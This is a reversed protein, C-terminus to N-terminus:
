KAARAESIFFVLQASTDDPNAEEGLEEFYISRLDEIPMQALSNQAVVEQGALLESIKAIEGELAGDHIVEVVDYASFANEKKGSMRIFDNPYFKAVRPKSTKRGKDWTQKELVVHTMKQEHELVSLGPRKNAPVKPLALEKSQKDKLDKVQKVTLDLIQIKNNPNEYGM